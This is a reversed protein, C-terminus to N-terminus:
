VKKLEREAALWFGIGDGTPKGAAEWKLYARVRLETQAENDSVHFLDLLHTVRFIDYVEPRLNFITITARESALKKRVSLLIGLSVSSIFVVNGFDIWLDRPKLEAILGKLVRSLTDASSEDLSTLSTFRFITQHDRKEAEIHWEPSM